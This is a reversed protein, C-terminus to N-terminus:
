CFPTKYSVLWRLASMQADAYGLQEQPALARGM